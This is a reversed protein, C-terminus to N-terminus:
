AYFEEQFRKQIGEVAPRNNILANVCDADLKVGALKGLAEFAEDNGWARKYPRRSTLADFVDAVAVIRAELPIESGKLGNPYGSGDMAEHHYEAINRLIDLHQIDQLGFNAIMDDIIKRGNAAHTRMLSVEEGSLKGPKLLIRDPIGIKGLDHLSAFLFIHEIVEDNLGYREAIERAILRAYGSMRDLHSGTEPDRHHAMLRASKVAAALTQIQSIETVIMLAILHGFVDLQHLVGPIFAARQFSNFFTFGLFHGSIYMPLTYSSQFGHAQLKRTHVHESAFIALNDVIRPHGTKLIEQLSSADSLRAEYHVLPSPGEDSSVFTKVTGTKADYLAVAIRDVFDFHQKLVRHVALLKEDIPLERNLDALIDKHELM